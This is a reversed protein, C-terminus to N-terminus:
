DNRVYMAAGADMFLEVNEAHHAIYAAPGTDGSHCIEEVVEAKAKGTILFIVLRATLIPFGTMAIRKQGNRPHTSTVYIQDSSLLAEQGPFISSTHGDDGAGWLVIDFEPWGNKKPVQRSVLESYRAAEKAPKEEDCNEALEDYAVHKGGKCAKCRELIVDERALEKDGYVTAVKITDGDETVATIGKCGAERIKEIDLKGDCGIGVIYTKERDVRHEKILQNFSYTDCPKLFVLTKGEEKSAKIMYKSLNAGCFGDYTFESLSEATEFFAPEASFDTDGKRWGLVRVVTGDSLLEKARSVLKEQM